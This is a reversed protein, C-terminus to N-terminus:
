TKKSMLNILGRTLLAKQVRPHFEKTMERAEEPTMEYIIPEIMKKVYFTITPIFWIDCLVDFISREVLISKLAGPLCNILGKEKIQNLKLKLFLGLGAFSILFLANTTPSLMSMIALGFAALFLLKSLKM